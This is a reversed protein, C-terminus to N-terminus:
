VSLVEEDIMDMLQAQHQEDFKRAYLAGSSKIEQMDGTNLLEPHPSAPEPWKMFRLNNNDIAGVISEDKANLLIMQFFLEDPAFTHKHFSIYSPNEAVYDLIYDLAAMDIVWWQSGQFPQVNAPMKRGLAPVMMSIFNASKAALKSHKEFGFFYKNVRYLGGNPSWRHHNPLPTHDMFIAYPSRAFFENIQKNSKIPYDQGSLLIVRDFHKGSKKVAKLANLTADVLGFKGWDTAVQDVFEVHHMGAFETAFNARNSKADVHVFFRSQGDNLRGVLRKVQKANKHVLIIYAKEVTRDNCNM